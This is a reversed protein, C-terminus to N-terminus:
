DVPNLVVFGGTQSIYIRHFVSAPVFGVADFSISRRSQVVDLGRIMTTGINITSDSHTIIGNAGQSTAM